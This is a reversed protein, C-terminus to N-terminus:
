GISQDRSAASKLAMTVALGGELRNALRLEGGHLRAIREVIALGLGSGASGSRATSGRRFPQRMSDIEDAPIGPGSDTVRILIHGTDQQTEIGFPAAGYHLANDMLNTVARMLAPRHALIPRPCHLSLCFVAEDASRFACCEEILENLDIWQGPVESQARGYDLFQDIIRDVQALSARLGALLEAEMRDAMIEIALRVKSLPTRLDHSVGALMLSREQELTSLSHAMLNFSHTLTAIEEPPEIPLPDPQRGQAILRASAVLRRLPQDLRRQLVLAGAVALAVILSSLLLAMLPAHLGATLGRIILWYNRDAVAISIWLSGQNDATWVVEDPRKHLRQGLQRAYQQWLSNVNGLMRPQRESAPVIDVKHSAAFSALFQDRQPSPLAQLGAVLGAVYDGALDALQETRPKQVLERFVLLGTVQAIVILMLILLATRGFLSRPLLRM